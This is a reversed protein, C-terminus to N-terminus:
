CFIGVVCQALVKVLCSVRSVAVWMGVPLSRFVSLSLSFLIVAHAFLAAIRVSHLQGVADEAGPSKSVRYIELQNVCFRSAFALSFFYICLFCRCRSRAPRLMGCGVEAVAVMAIETIAVSDVATVYVWTGFPYFRLANPTSLM